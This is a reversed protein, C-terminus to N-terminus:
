LTSKTKIYFYANDEGVSIVGTINWNGEVTIDAQSEYLLGNKSFSELIIDNYNTTSRTLLMKVKVDEVSNGNKDTIFAAINNHGVKLLNKNSSKTELARQALFIDQISVEVEKSNLILKVDYKQLFKDNEIMMNNFNDDVNQYSSLFSKEEHIDVKSASMITWIIMAITFSFIAFFFLLWWHYKQM